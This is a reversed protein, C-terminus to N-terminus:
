APRQASVAAPARTTLRDVVAAAVRLWATRTPSSLASHNIVGGGSLARDFPVPIVRAADGGTAAAFHDSLRKREDEPTRPSPDSLVTVASELLHGYPGAALADVMWAASAASDERVTTTIVLQDTQAAAAQWNASRINNGTDIVVLRYFRQILTHLAAFDDADVVGAGTPDEDSRLVDFRVGAQHHVHADLDGLRGATSTLEPAAALLTRVTGGHGADASRLGMTGRTENNDWALVGGGRAQGLAASLLLTTTTKGVGGKPNVVMVTRPGPLQAQVTTTLEFRAAEAAGPALPLGVSRALWGRWGERARTPATQSSRGGLLDAASPRSAAPAPPKDAASTTAARAPVPAAQEDPDVDSERAPVPTAAPQDVVDPEVSTTPTKATTETAPEPDPAPESRGDAYVVLATQEDGDDALARVPRGRELAMRAVAAIAAQEPTLGDVPAVARGDVTAGGDVLALRVQETATSAKM